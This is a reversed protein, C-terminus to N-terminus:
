EISVSFPVDYHFGGIEFGSRLRAKALNHAKYNSSRSIATLTLLRLNEKKRKINQLYAYDGM